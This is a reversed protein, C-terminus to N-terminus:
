SDSGVSRDRAVLERARTALLTCPELCPVTVPKLGPAREFDSLPEPGVRGAGGAVDVDVDNTWIRYRRCTACLTTVVEDVDRATLKRVDAYM